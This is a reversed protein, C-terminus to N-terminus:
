DYLWHPFPPTTWLTLPPNDLLNRDCIYMIYDIYMDTRGARHRILSDELRTYTLKTLEFVGEHMSTHM